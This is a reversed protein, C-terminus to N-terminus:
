QVAGGLWLRHLQRLVADGAAIEELADDPDPRTRLWAVLSRVMERRAEIFVRYEANVSSSTPDALRSTTTTAM